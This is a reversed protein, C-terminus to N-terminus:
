GQRQKQLDSVRQKGQQSAERLQMRLKINVEVLVFGDASRKISSLDQFNVLGIRYTERGLGRFQCCCFFPM